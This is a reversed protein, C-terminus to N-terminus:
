KVGRLLAPNIHISKRKGDVVRRARDLSELEEVASEIAVKKRLDVPAGQQIAAIPVINTNHRKCYALMWSDLRAADALEKPLALGGFFRRAENLHWATIRSASEFADLSIAGADGSFVHFQCALRAANDATKSAVDRIDFLEGGTALLSEIADHFEIWSEKADPTLTVIEPSDRICM